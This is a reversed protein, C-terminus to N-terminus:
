GSVVLIKRGGKLRHGTRFFSMKSIDNFRNENRNKGTHLYEKVFSEFPERHVNNGGGLVMESQLCFIEKSVTM